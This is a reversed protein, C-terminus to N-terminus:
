LEMRQCDVPPTKEKEQQEQRHFVKGDPHTRWSLKVQGEVGREELEQQLKQIIAHQFHPQHLDASATRVRIKMIRLSSSVVLSQCLFRESEDCRENHWDASKSDVDVMVCRKTEDNLDPEKEAWHRYTSNNDESWTWGDRHLGIWTLPDNSTGEIDQLASLKSGILKNVQENVVSSLDTHTDRCYRQAESWTKLEQVLIHEKLTASYCISFHKEECDRVKWRSHTCMGVCGGPGPEDTGWNDFWSDLHVVQDGESWRWPPRYLGIWFKGSQVLQQVDTNDQADQITALDDFNERCHGQAESWTTRSDVMHFRRDGTDGQLHSDVVWGSSSAPSM